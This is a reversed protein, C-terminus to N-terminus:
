GYFATAADEPVGRFQWVAGGRDERVKPVGSTGSTPTVRWETLTVAVEMLAM